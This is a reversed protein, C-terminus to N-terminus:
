TAPSVHTTRLAVFCCHHAVVGRMPIRVHGMERIKLVTGDAVKVSVGQLGQTVDHMIHRNKCLHVSAGSDLIFENEKCTTTTFAIDV